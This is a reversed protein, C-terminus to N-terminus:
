IIKNIENIIKNEYTEWTYKAATNYAVDSMESIKSKNKVFWEIKEKLLEVNSPPVVFGNEGDIILDNIGTNTTCIVPLGCGMAELGSLAMGEALSPFIFIDAKLYIEKMKDHTVLGIVNINKYKNNSKLYEYESGVNGVIDLEVLNEDVSSFARLLYDIGKRSIVQGVFLFKIKKNNYDTKHNIEKKINVKNVINTGYPVIHINNSDVGSFEFSGKVFKSPVIFEQTNIIEDYLSKIIKKNWLYKNEIRYSENGTKEIENIYIEKIYLRSAISSDMIRKIHPAKEKLIKFCIEATTDYMIVADVNNKIAYKAVKKGFIKSTKRNWWRYLGKSKDIRVLILEILGLIECFQVVEDDNLEICKRGTARKLNDKSIIRKTIKMIWSSEKDYVTTIYRFLIGEKKLASALRFSHQRGPHAVIVKKM